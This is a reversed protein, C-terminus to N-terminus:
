LLIGKYGLENKLVGFIDNYLSHVTDGTIPAYAKSPPGKSGTNRM